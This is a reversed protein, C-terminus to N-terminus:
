ISKKLNEIYGSIDKGNMNDLTKKFENNSLNYIKLFSNLIEPKIKVGDVRYSKNDIAMKVQKTAPVKGEKVIKKSTKSLSIEDKIVEQVLKRLESKKMKIIGLLNSKLRILKEM